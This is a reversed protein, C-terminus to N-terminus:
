SSLIKIEIEIPVLEHEWGGEHLDAANIAALAESPFVPICEVVSGDRMKMGGMALDGHTKCKLSFFRKSTEM